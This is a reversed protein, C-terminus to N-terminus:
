GYLNNRNNPNAYYKDLFLIRYRKEGNLMTSYKIKQMYYGDNATIIGDSTIGVIVYTHQSANNGPIEQFVIDGPQIKRLLVEASLNSLDMGNYYKVNKGYITVGDAEPFFEKSTMSSAGADGGTCLNMGGNCMSWRVFTACNLGHWCSITKDDSCTGGPKGWKRNVGLKGCIDSNSKCYDTGDPDVHVKGSTHNYPLVYGTMNYVCEILGYAAATVGYRTYPGAELVRNYICQNLQNVNYGKNALAEEIGIHLRRSSNVMTQYGNPELSSKSQTVQCNIRNVNGIYDKVDVSLNNTSAINSTYNSNSLYGSEQNNIHYNYGVIYNFSTVKVSFVTKNYYTTVTCTGTPIEKDINNIKVVKVVSTGDKNFAEFKYEGNESAEYYYNASRIETNDPLVLYDYNDGIIKVRISVNMNTMNDDSLETIISLDGNNLVTVKQMLMATYGLSNSISYVNKYEGVENLNVSNNKIIRNTIIGDKRDIATVSDDYEQGIMVEVEDDPVSIIPSYNIAVPNNVVIVKRIKYSGSEMMYYINYVGETNTDVNGSIQIYDLGNYGLEYYNSGKTLLYVDKGILNIDNNDEMIKSEYGDCMLYPTYQENKYIVGSLVNCNDPLNINLKNADLYIEKTKDVRTSRIYEQAKELMEEELTLYVNKVTKNNKIIVIFLIVILIGLGILILKLKNNTNYQVISDSSSYDYDDIEDEVIYNSM